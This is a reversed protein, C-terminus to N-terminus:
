IPVRSLVTEDTVKELQGGASFPPVLEFWNIVRKEIEREREGREEREIREVTAGIQPKGNLCLREISQIFFSNTKNFSDVNLIICM